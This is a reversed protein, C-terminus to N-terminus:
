KRQITVGKITDFVHGILARGATFSLFSLACLPAPLKSVKVGFNKVIGELSTHCYRYLQEVLM